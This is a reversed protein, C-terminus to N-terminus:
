YLQLAVENFDCKPMTTRRYIQHMNEPRRKRLVGISPQKKCYEQALTYSKAIFVNAFNTM